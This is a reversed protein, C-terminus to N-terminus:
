CPLWSELFKSLKITWLPRDLLSKCFNIPLYLALFLLIAACSSFGVFSSKYNNCCIGLVHKPNTVGEMLKPNQPLKFQSQSEQMCDENVPKDKKGAHQQKPIGACFTNNIFIQHKYSKDPYPSLTSASICASSKWMLYVVTRGDFLELLNRHFPFGM